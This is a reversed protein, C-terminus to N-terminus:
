PKIKYRWIEAKDMIEKADLYVFEGNKLLQKGAVWVDSVQRSNAAYVVQSAPNFIAQTNPAALDIAVMDAEKHPILSGIRHDVGLSKAGNLTAMKLAQFANVATPDKAVAKALIAATKMEGMMDLDNNSATSDTGLAVNINKDMLKKVPCFGSALKLNSEPCHVVHTRTAALIEIDEDSIQALHVAQTKESLVGLKYLREIPRMGFQKLSQEIEDLTEHLHVHILMGTKEALDKVKYFTDDSVTYPAHPAISASILDHHQYHAYIKQAKLLYDDANNGYATPFDLICVGLHARLKAEEVARGIGELFFYNDNFCTTGSRLMELVALRAGDYCFEDSLWKKEAPWIYNNLWDMLALDDALGSFLIMPTHTHANVLGPLLVHNKLHINEKAEYHALIKDQHLIELIKGQDIAIAHHEFVINEPEIPIIWSPFILTDIKKM